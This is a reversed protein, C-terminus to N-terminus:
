LASDVVVQAEDVTVVVYVLRTVTVTCGLLTAAGVPVELEELTYLAALTALEALEAAGTTGM